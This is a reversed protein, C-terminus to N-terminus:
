GDARGPGSRGYTVNGNELQAPIGCGCAFTISLGVCFMLVCVTFPLTRSEERHRAVEKWNPTDPSVEMHLHWEAGGVAMLVVGILVGAILWKM